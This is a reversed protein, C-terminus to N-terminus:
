VVDKNALVYFIFLINNFNFAILYIDSKLLTISTTPSSSYFFNVDKAYKFNYSILYYEVSIAM